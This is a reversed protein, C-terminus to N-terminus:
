EGDEPQPTAGPQPFYKLIGRLVEDPVAALPSSATDHLAGQAGEAQEPKVRWREGEINTLTFIIAALDPPNQKRTVVQNKVSRNGEGDMEYTTKVECTVFGSARKGLGAVARNRLREGPTTPTTAVVTPPEEQKATTRGRRRPAIVPGPWTEAGALPLAAQNKPLDKM